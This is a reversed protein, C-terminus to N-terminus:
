RELGVSRITPKRSTAFIIVLFAAEEDATPSDSRNFLASLDVRAVLISKMTPEMAKGSARLAENKDVEIWQTPLVEAGHSIMEEATSRDIVRVAALRLYSLWEHLRSADLLKKAQQDVKDYMWLKGRKELSKKQNAKATTFQTAAPRELREAFFM